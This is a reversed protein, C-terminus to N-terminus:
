GIGGDERLNAVPCALRWVVGSPPYDLDVTGGVTRQVMGEMLTTGFGHWRPATVAPGNHESWTMAFRDGDVGWTVDVDGGETSLAGYVGANTALEHLALGIAQSSAASLGLPPGQVTIRSGLLPAFPALQARVLDSVDVGQWRNRVLLDQNVSLAQIRESFRALFDRPNRAATQQAISQVISLMNKARHNIERVLLHEREEREKRDTIDLIVATNRLPRGADDRVVNVTTRTWVTTRDKRVYRRDLDLVAAPGAALDQLLERNRWSEDPHAVDFLTLALLEEEAYQLLRCMASNARLFRGGVSDFEVKAVSSVEFMARFAAESERLAAETRKIRTVDASASVMGVVRGDSWQPSFRAQVVRPDSDTHGISRAPVEVEFEVARGAFCERLYPEAVAFAEGDIVEPVTRGVIDEPALGERNALHRNVFTYRWKTDISAIAVPAHDVIFRLRRENERLKAITERLDSETDPWPQGAEGSGTGPRSASGFSRATMALNWFAGVRAGPLSHM